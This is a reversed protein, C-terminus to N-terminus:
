SMTKNYLRFWSGLSAEFELDKQQTEDINFNYTHAERGTGPNEFDSNRSGNPKYKWQDYNM